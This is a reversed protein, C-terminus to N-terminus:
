YFVTYIAAAALLWAAWGFVTVSASLAYGGDLFAAVGASLFFGLVLVFGQATKTASM